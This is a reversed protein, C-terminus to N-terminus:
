PPMFSPAVGTHDGMGDNRFDRKPKLILLRRYFPEM